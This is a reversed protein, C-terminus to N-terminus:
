WAGGDMPNEPCSYQLPTGNGERSLLHSSMLVLGLSSGSRRLELEAGLRSLASGRGLPQETELSKTGSFVIAGWELVRARFIGHVSFGTLLGPCSGEHVVKMPASFAIAGWELVRARFIGHVSSGPPICVARSRTNESLCHTVALCFCRDCIVMLATPRVAAQSRSDPFRM